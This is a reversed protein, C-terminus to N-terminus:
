APIRGASHQVPPCVNCHAAWFFKSIAIAGDSAEDKSEAMRLNSGERGLWGTAREAPIQPDAAPLACIARVGPRIARAFEKVDM